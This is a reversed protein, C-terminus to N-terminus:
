ICPSLDFKLTESLFFHLVHGFDVGLENLFTENSKKIKIGNRRRLAWLEQKISDM